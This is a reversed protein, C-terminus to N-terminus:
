APLEVPGPPDYVLVEFVEELAAQDGAVVRVRDGEVAADPSVTHLALDIFTRLDCEVTVTPEVPSPGTRPLYHGDLARLHFVEHGIRFEVTGARAPDPERIQTGALCLAVLEARMSGPDIRDDLPLQLGWLGLAVVPARLREGEDTLEYAVVSAPDPLSVKRILRARELGKLRTSLRNTGIGDLAALLHKFRKPGLLLERVVLMTWREGLVDLARAVPCMQGYTRASSEAAGGTSAM